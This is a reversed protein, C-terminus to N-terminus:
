AGNVSAIEFIDSAIIALIALVAFVSFQLM